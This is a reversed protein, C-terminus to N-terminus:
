TFKFTFNVIPIIYRYLSLLRQRTMAQKQGQRDFASSMSHLPTTYTHCDFPNSHQKNTMGVCGRQM